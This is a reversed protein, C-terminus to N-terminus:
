TRFGFRTALELCQKWPLVGGSCTADSLCAAAATVGARLCDELTWDEHLGLLMGAALADGAGVASAIWSEPLALSPQRIVRGDRTRVLVGETCHICVIDAVGRRSLAAAADAIAIWDAAGDSTTSIGTLRHAELENLFLYDVFPLAPGVVPEFRDSEASVLDVSTRFGHQKAERLLRAAATTGDSAVADLRDLLLLYGLHFIRATSRGLEFHGADLHRNAGPQHFFTRRGTRQVTMVETYSTPADATVTIQGTDIRACACDALIYQGPEDDGILGAGSLPFPADLRALDKLVNYPSGGNSRYTDLIYALRDQEPYHDIVSVRDVIWNGGALIGQRRTSM